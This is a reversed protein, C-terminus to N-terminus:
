AVRGYFTLRAEESLEIDPKTNYALVAQIREIPGHVPAVRHLTDRGRFLVLTGENVKVQSPKVRGKLVKNIGTFNKQDRVIGHSPEIYEFEGGSLPAQIMLTIAFSSNDFHWGLEQGTRYYHVNISSLPDAYPYLAKEGLVMCLFSTFQDSDYLARLLSDTPVQDDTICGKTSTVQRNKPHNNSYTSDPPSLYVTHTHTCFYALHQRDSAERKLTALARDPVFGHLTLVGKEELRTKCLRVFEAERIPHREIDVVNSIGSNM